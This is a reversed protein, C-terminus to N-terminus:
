FILGARTEKSTRSSHVTSNRSLLLVGIFANRHAARTKGSDGVTIARLPDMQGGAITDIAISSITFNLAWNNNHAASFFLLQLHHNPGNRMQSSSFSPSPCRLLISCLLISPPPPWIGRASGRGTKEKRSSLATVPSKRDPRGRRLACAHVVNQAGGGRRRRCSASASAGGGRM